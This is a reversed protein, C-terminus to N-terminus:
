ITPEAKQQEAIAEALATEYLDRRSYTGDEEHYVVDAGNDAALGGCYWYEYWKKMLPSSPELPAKGAMYQNFTTHWQIRGGNMRYSCTMLGEFGPYKHVGCCCAWKNIEGHPDPTVWLDLNMSECLKKWGRHVEVIYDTDLRADGNPLFQIPYNALRLKEMYDYGLAANLAERFKPTRFQKLWDTIIDKAGADAIKGLLSNINETLMPFVPAIRVQCIIGADTLTKIARLRESPFSAGPEMQKAFLDDDTCISFQAITPTDQMAEVYEPRALVTGKTTIILPHQYQKSIKLCQLSVGLKAEIPQFPDTMMGFHIPVKKRLLKHIPGNLKGEYSGKMDKRFIEVDACRIPSWIHKAEQIRKAYCYQCNHSCGLYPNLHIPFPCRFLDGFRALYFPKQYLNKTDIKVPEMGM